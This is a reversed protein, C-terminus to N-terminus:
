ALIGRAQKPHWGPGNQGKRGRGQNTEARGGGRSRASTGAPQEARRAAAGRGRSHTYLITRDPNGASSISALFDWLGGLEIGPSSPTLSVAIDSTIGIQAGGSRSSDAASTATVTVNPLVPLDRGATYLGAGNGMSIITGVSSNGGAIGNVAWTVGTNTTNSVTATFSQTARAAGCGIAALGDRYDHPSSTAASASCPKRRGRRLGTDVCGGHPARVPVSRRGRHQAEDQMGVHVAPFCSM